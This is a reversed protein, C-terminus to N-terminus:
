SKKGIWGSPASGSPSPINEYEDERAMNEAILKDKLYAMKKQKFQSCIELIIAGYKQVRIQTMQDIELLQSNNEPLNQSIERYVTVPMASYVSKLEPFNTSIATKLAMFCDDEIRKLEEDGANDIEEASQESAKIKSKTIISFEEKSFDSLFKHYNPGLRLYTAAGYANTEIEEKLLKELIMKRLIKVCMESSYNKANGKNLLIFFETYPGTVIFPPELLIDNLLKVLIHMISVTCPIRIGIASFYRKEKVEM